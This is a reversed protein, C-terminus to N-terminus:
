LNCQELQWDTYYFNSNQKAQESWKICEIEETRDIGKSLLWGFLLVILLFIISKLLKM